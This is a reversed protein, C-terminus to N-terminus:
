PFPFAFDYLHVRVHKTLADRHQFAVSIAPPSEPPLALPHVFCTSTAPRRRFTDEYNKPHNSTSYRERAMPLEPM